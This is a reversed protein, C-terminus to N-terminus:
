RSDPEVGLNRLQEALRAVCRETQDAHQQAQDARQQAQLRAQREEDARRLQEDRENVMEQFNLFRRGDPYYNVLKGGDLEFRIGLRPSVWGNMEEVEDLAGDRRVFGELLNHDPDYFYYEEVGFRDYFSFKRMLEGYRNGPSRVEFVVHPPVGGENWQQYSGRDGKPRGFAVMVDPATRTKNDGKVPYWLLGGAVFANPDHRFLVDINSHITVVWRFQLTNDAIPEGDSDPYVVKHGPTKPIVPKMFEM